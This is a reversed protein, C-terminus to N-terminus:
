VSLLVGLTAAGTARAIALMYLRVQNEYRARAEAELEADTKFDIVTWADGERFTLDVIGDVITGDDLRVAIAVERRCAAARAARLMLPHELSRRVRIVAAAMEDATAGVLRGHATALPELDAAGGLPVVALMAHVLAGFRKGRPHADRDGAVRELSIEGFLNTADALATASATRITPQAGRTANEIRRAQWAAHDRAATDLTPTSDDAVLIAQQRLGVDIERDLQLAHPDWWVVRHSGAEAHHEGPAVADELTRRCEAPREFVSDATFTPCGAAIEPQHRDGPHPHIAPSLVSLWGDQREDGVVPIVLLDRARTAAVYTLRISEEEERRLVEDRNELLEIPACGAVREVWLRRAHDVHHTPENRVAPATPDVLIVVPFELGKAKHVTMMRVGDTGEEVVPAEGAAGREAAEELWEIFARFSTAGSAEFRRALDVLRLVNALAQEGSPWIAVGAHARTAELLRGITDAIPRRNRSRHLEALIALADAVPRTLESLEGEGSPPPRLPHFASGGPRAASFALLADDGLAFFPGRLTAFVSLDDDPWEIATLTARLAAIEERHHFSRGGILVHAIGRAELARVYARTVDTSYAQFRKFLLCVHRPAIPVWEGPSERETVRWGSERVLWDVFAGVADPFSADISYNTVKGYPAYPRPVPLAILSPRGEADTRAPRLAVYEAQTGAENPQMAISFAANVAGQITPTGRFSTVLHLVEAGHAVLRRKVQEYLAVDARRFRYISQKPDGVLFLKGPRPVVNTWDAHEADGCCLLLLIEAQLPDTDQFEDVFIHTFRAQLERRVEPHGRVLDRARLLLDLFDLKGARTKLSEYADVLPALEGHLLAALEANARQGFGDLEIKLRDKRELAEARTVKGRAFWQGSGKWRWEKLRTLEILEAELADYDRPRVAERRALERTFTQMRVFVPRLWDDKRDAADAMPAAVAIEGLVRDIERDRDFEDRRWETAFDRHELLQLGASRLEERPSLADRGRRRRRLMRRVGPPPNELARQFWLDFAQDYQRRADDEPAVQFLPDVGAEVPRERLLDVCLSHITGIRAEELQALARDLRTSEVDDTVATREKELAARVRLKMEGAAAETFTVAVISQLEARGTRVLSVVRSVLATTKGTGAAAEVVFTRDLDDRIRQRAVEDFLASM